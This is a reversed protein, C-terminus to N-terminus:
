LSNKFYRELYENEKQTMTAKDSKKKDKYGCLHLAGHFVVRHLELYQPINLLNANEKVRDLSIYIEGETAPSNQNSLDFTIIDTYYDHQLYQQNINLLFNDSCFVISLQELAKGELFFLGELFVKLAKRNKLHLPKDASYFYIM